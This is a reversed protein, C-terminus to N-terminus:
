GAGGDTSAGPGGYDLVRVPRTRTPVLTRALAVSLRKRLTAISNAAHREPRLPPAHPNLVAPFPLNRAGGPPQPPFRQENSVCFDTPQSVFAPTITFAVGAEGEPWEVVLWEVPHPAPSPTTAHRRGSAFRPSADRCLRTPVRVGHWAPGPRPPCVCRWLRPQFRGTLTPAAFSRRRADAFGHLLGEAAGGSGCAGARWGSERHIASEIYRAFRGESEM